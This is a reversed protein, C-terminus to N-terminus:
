KRRTRVKAHPRKKRAARQRKYAAERKLLEDKSVSVIKRLATDFRKFPDPEPSPGSKV